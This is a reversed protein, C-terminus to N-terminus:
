ERLLGYYSQIILDGTVVDDHAVGTARRDEHMPAEEHARPELNATLPRQPTSAM